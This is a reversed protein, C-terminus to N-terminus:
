YKIHRINLIENIIDDCTQSTTHLMTFDLSEILDYLENM